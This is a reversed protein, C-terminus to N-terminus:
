RFLTRGRGADRRTRIRRLAQRAAGLYGVPRGDQGAAARGRDARRRSIQRAHADLAAEVQAPDGGPKVPRRSSCPRRGRVDPERGFGAGRDARRAGVRQRAALKIARWPGDRRAHARFQRGTTAGAGGLVQHHIPEAAPRQAHFPRRAALTPVPASVDPAEPGSPDRRVLKQTKERATALTSTASSCWCPMTRGYHRRFWDKVTDLTAADLDAMSGITSHRYPHGVPFLDSSCTSGYLGRPQQAWQAKREPRRRDPEQADGPDVGGLLHGMQDSKAFLAVDLANTPVTVFYNTRDFWTTPTTARRGSKM